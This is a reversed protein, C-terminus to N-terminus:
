QQLEAVEFTAKLEDIMVEFEGPETIWKNDRGVFALDETNISFSITQTAGPELSVKDFGRLRKMPPTISAMWNNMRSLTAEMV